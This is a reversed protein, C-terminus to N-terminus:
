APGDEDSAPQAASASDSAGAGNVQAESAESAEAPPTPAEADNEGWTGDSADSTRFLQVVNPRDSAESLPAYLGRGAKRLRGADALRRLYKGATDNDMGTRAAVAAPSVPGDHGTVAEIIERSRDGLGVEARRTQAAKAATELSGGDLTWTGAAFTLAYEGESVDRGTVQLLGGPENRGRTLVLVTDAGGAIGNTGSVSEVFDATVAKRDHHNMLLASGPWADAIAKLESMVRYDRSYPAEGSIAPPLAKGLTDVVILGTKYAELWAAITANLQGPGVATLYQFQPPIDPSGLLKCCREQMRRDGDELALYLVDRPAPMAIGGIATGNGAAAALLFDLVIWSKGVKPAGALVTLGEPVIAPVWYRLPAFEQSSLWKGNRIGALLSDAGAAPAAYVGAPYGSRPPCVCDAIAEDCGECELPGSWDSQYASRGCKLCDSV